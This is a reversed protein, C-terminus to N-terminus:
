NSDLVLTRNLVVNVWVIMSLRSIFNKKNPLVSNVFNRGEEVGGIFRASQLQYCEDLLFM